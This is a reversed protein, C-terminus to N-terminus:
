SNAFADRTLNETHDPHLALNDEIRIGGCPRLQEVREWNVAKAQPHHRLGALLTDIFYLGPEVTLVMGAELPRTLRLFPHEDPPPLPTGQPDAVQGGVDHVQIGLLHGLGHPYFSRTIGTEVLSEPALDVIEFLQLLLAVAQHTRQHLEVFSAGVSASAVLRRQVEDMAAVLEAFLGPRAAYTRTIDACYGRVEAGADILFADPSAPHRRDLHQYHLVAAHQDIAIINGYPLENERQGSAALYALHIDFESGGDRFCQEAARHGAVALQSAERLCALEYGSKYGRLWNLEHLLPEPNIATFGWRQALAADEGVFALGPTDGLASQVEVPDAFEAIDFPDTWFGGPAGDSLHWFDVPSHYFLQPRKGPRILLFGHQHRPLPLWHKFHPNAYFPLAHDDLFIGTATGSYIVMGAYGLRELLAATHGQLTAVHDAYLESLNM